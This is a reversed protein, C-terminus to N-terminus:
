LRHDLSNFKITQMENLTYCATGM